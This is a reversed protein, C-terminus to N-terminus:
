RTGSLVERYWAVTRALGDPLAVKPAWDLHASAKTSDLWQVPIEPLEAGQVLPELDTRGVARQIEGVMALVSIPVGNGFNFAEGCQRGALLARGLALYGSVADDVFLYDRGLMGNSRIVPREGDILARTTGPVIRSWNLDGGGYINACRAIGVPLGYSRAYASSIMDAASKSVDYIFRGALAQDERYPPPTADGYAKDSSAIVIAGVGAHARRAADLVNYTGRVNSELTAHPQRLANPVQTQAALHFIVTPEYQALLRELQAVDMLDGRVRIVREVDGSRVFESRPDEDRLLAIVLAHEGLLARILWSGLIGGAGTVLV